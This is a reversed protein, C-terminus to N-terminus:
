VVCPQWRTGDWVYPSAQKWKDNIYVYCEATKYEADKYVYALSPQIIKESFTYISFNNCKQVASIKFQVEKNIPVDTITCHFVVDGLIDEAKPTYTGIVENNQLMQITWNKCAYTSNGIITITGPTDKNISTITITGLTNNSSCTRTATLHNSSTRTITLKYTSDTNAAINVKGSYSNSKLRGSAYVTSGKTLKWDVELGNTNFSLTSTSRDYPTLSLNDIIPLRTDFSTTKSTSINTTRIAGLNPVLVVTLDGTTNGVNMDTNFTARTRPSIGYITPTCNINTTYNIRITNSNIISVSPGTTFTPIFTPVTVTAYGYVDNSERKGRVTITNGAVINSVTIYTEVNTHQVTLKNYSYNGNNVKVVYEDIYWSNSSVKLRADYKGTSNNYSIQDINANITPRRLDFTLSKNTIGNYVETAMCSEIQRGNLTATLKVWYQSNSHIIDGSPQTSINNDYRTPYVFHFNCGISCENMIPRNNEYQLYGDGYEYARWSNPDVYQSLSYIGLRSRAKNINDNAMRETWWDATAAYQGTDSYIFHLKNAM